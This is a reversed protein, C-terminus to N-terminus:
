RRTPSAAAGAAMNEPIAACLLGAAGAKTWAERDYMGQEHWRDLHPVFEAAMFRRAQAELLVLDETMWPPPPLSLASM